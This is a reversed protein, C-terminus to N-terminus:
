IKKNKIFNDFDKIEWDNLDWRNKWTGWGWSSARPSLFIDNYYNNPIEIPPCYGSISWIKNNNKYYDLAENMYTLFYPHTILDDELVIVKESKNIIETVGSIISNALGKNNESIKIEVNKFGEINKIVNRVKEVNNKDKEKKPGDSFIILESEKALYNNKLAEITKKAHELRNYVFLLIPSLSILLWGRKYNIKNLILPVFFIALLNGVLYAFSSM